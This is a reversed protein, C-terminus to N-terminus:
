DKQDDPTLGIHGEIFAGIRRFKEYRDRLLKEEDVKELEELYHEIVRKIRTAMGKPDRHAGGLPEEIVEDIVGLKYLDRATLKLSDAAIAKGKDGDKWLIAACGEPSIVSYISYELMLIRDGMGIALAGGSGGEGIVLALIPVKLIAMTKLNRAIAEAQGREEAGIGPFAGPTDIMTLVPKKFVEAMKMLRLAKRYGEPHPMGFNRYAMERVDTGKQHAIVVLTRGNFTSLGGIIAPDEGYARDGHLEIFNEFLEQIYFSAKPRDIHRALQTIQWGTLNSFIERRLRDLREELRRIQEDFSTARGKSFRKLREIENELDVLPKEFDLFHRVM